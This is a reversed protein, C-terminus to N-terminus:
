RRVTETIGHQANSSHKVSFTSAANWASAPCSSQRPDHEGRIAHEEQAADPHTKRRASRVEGIGERVAIGARSM